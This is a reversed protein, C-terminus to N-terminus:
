HRRRGARRHVQRHRARRCSRHDTSTAKVGAWFNEGFRMYFPVPDVSALAEKVTAEIDTIYAQHLAVDDRTTLRGLRGCM